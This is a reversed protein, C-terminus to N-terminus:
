PRTARAKAAQNMIEAGLAHYRERLREVEAILEKARDTAVSAQVDPDPGYARPDVGLAKMVDRVDKRRAVVEAILADIDTVADILAALLYGAEPTTPEDILSGANANRKRIAELDIM